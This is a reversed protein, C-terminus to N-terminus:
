NDGKYGDLFKSTAVSMEDIANILSPPMVGKYSASNWRAIEGSLNQTCKILPTLRVPAKAM